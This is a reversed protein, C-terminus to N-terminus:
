QKSVTDKFVDPVTDFEPPAVADSVPLVVGHPSVYKVEGLLRVGCYDYVRDSVVRVLDLIDRSGANGCNIIFNAHQTSVMADGIRTGKLGAAEIVKGPPGFRQYMEGGSVFVSGCNPMKRPFKTSRDTLIALMEARMIRPDKRAYEMEVESVIWGGRQFISSRHAFACEEATFQRANGERDVARVSSVCDGISKRQSGGNMVVLGGLTGPIGIAHELGSLGARAAVRALHPIWVGAQARIRSDDINYDSMSNAIRIVAGRFGDDDFLLNTGHGIVLLPCQYKTLIRLAHGIDQTDAPQIFIDAPGGIKWSSYGRLAVKAKVSGTLQDRLEALLGLHSETPDAELHM